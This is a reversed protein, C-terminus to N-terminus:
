SRDGQTTSTVGTRLKAIAANAQSKVTGPAIKLAEAIELETLDEYYRLVVIARQRPPLSRVLEWMADREALHTGPESVEDRSERLPERAHRRRKEARWHTSAQNIMIRRVYADPTEAREVRRWSVYVKVLTSQLLEDAEQVDGVLAYATRFLRGWSQEVYSTFDDTVNTM